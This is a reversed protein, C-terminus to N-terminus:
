SAPRSVDQTVTIKGTVLTVVEGALRMEVDYVLTGVTLLDAKTEDLIVDVSSTDGDVPEVDFSTLVTPSTASARIDADWTAGSIDVPQLLDDTVTIRFRGTDGRYVSLDVEMPGSLEVTEAMLSAEYLLTPEFLPEEPKTTRFSKQQLSM